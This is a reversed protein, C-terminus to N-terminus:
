KRRRRLVRGVLMLAPIAWVWTLDTKMPEPTPETTPDFIFLTFPEWAAVFKERDPLGGIVPIIAKLHPDTAFHPWFAAREEPTTERARFSEVGDATQLTVLSNATLNKAWDSQPWQRIVYKRGEIKFYELPTHRPIGSKRGTTTLICVYRNLLPGLGMRYLYMPVKYFWKGFGDKPYVLKATLDPLKAADTPLTPTSTAM